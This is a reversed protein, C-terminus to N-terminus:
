GRNKVFGGSRTPLTISLVVAGDTGTTELKIKIYDFKKARLKVKKPQPSWNQEFSFTDFDWSDFTDLRYGIRKIFKYAARVDTSLYIDVHTSVLPLLSIFMYQIFKRLYDAGFNYYGMEWTAIIEQGNFTPEDEAFRMVEGTETGFYLHKDVTMFCTPEHPLDLIYWADVRYNYAWIRNGICLLYVGKDDWDWSLAKTLDLADLDRQVRKSIWEANKENMVYTSVWQYVGKWITFPNNLVIQVQGPAVNGVKSSIPFVPFLTTLIGSNPDMYNENTSYWASAGSSDGTTFILQKDYQTVIGTIEYEGVDSDTFIPWYTPDSVGAMTVGSCFRTNRYEPNGYLWFRAYYQGGYWRCNTIKERYGEEEKTWTIEVNNVGNPPETVFTITGNVLDASYDVDQTLTSGGVTVSDIRDINYEPLQYVPASGNGSFKMKKTGTLYNIGELITGGGTPPAATFATPIYGEVVEFDEGDWQYFETGDMIYVINNTVWFTTPYADVITGLEIEEIEHTIPNEKLEYVKGGRAFLLHNQGNLQGYWMGNIKKNEEPDNLSSYGFMKKLKQDDTIIFNSMESAEGLELLTETESKNVGKFTDITFIQLEAM